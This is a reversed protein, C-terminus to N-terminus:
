NNSAGQKIWALILQNLNSPNVPGNPPMTTSKKGTLWLYVESKDPAGLNLYGGNNLSNFANLESLDPKVGGSTHCGSLSCNKNLIPVIDKALSVQESVESGNDNVLTTVKYCAPLCCIVFAIIGASWVIRKLSM